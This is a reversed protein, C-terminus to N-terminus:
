IKIYQQLNSVVMNKIQNKQKLLPLRNSFFNVQEEITSIQLGEREFRKMKETLYDNDISYIDENKELAILAFCQLYANKNNQKILNGQVFNATLIDKDPATAKKYSEFFQILDPENIDYLITGYIKLFEYYREIGIESLPETVINIDITKLKIKKM